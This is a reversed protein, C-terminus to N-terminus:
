RAFEEKLRAIEEKELYRAVHSKRSFDRWTAGAAIAGPAADFIRARAAIAREINAIADLGERTLEGDRSLYGLPIAETRARKLRRGLGPLDITGDCLSLLLSVDGTATAAAPTPSGDADVYGGACAEARALKLRRGLGALDVPGARSLRMVHLLASLQPSHDPGQTVVTAKEKVNGLDNRSMKGGTADTGGINLHASQSSQTDGGDVGGPPVLQGRIYPTKTGGRDGRNSTQGPGDPCGGTSVVYEGSQNQTKQTASRMLTHTAVHPSPQPTETGGKDGFRTKLSAVGGESLIKEPHCARRFERWSTGSKIAADGRALLGERTQRKRGGTPDKIRPDPEPWAGGGQEHWRRAQDVAQPLSAGPASVPALESGQVVAPSSAVAKLFEEDANLLVVTLLKGEEGRLGRGVNQLLLSVREETRHRAYEEQTLEEPNFSATPRFADCDVVIYKLGPVDAGTGMAGRSYTIMVREEARKLGSGDRWDLDRSANEIILRSTPHSHAVAGHLGRAREKTTTFVLGQGIAELPETVLRQRGDYLAQLGTHGSIAVLSVQRVKRASYPHERVVLDPWVSRLVALDDKSVTAGAFAIGRAYERLMELPAGDTLLLRPVECTGIPFEIGADWDKAKVDLSQPPVATGRRDPRERVVTPRTAFGLMHDVVEQNSEVPHRGEEKQFVLLQQPFGTPRVRSAWETTGVRVEPGTQLDIGEIPNSPRSCAGDRDYVTTKPGLLVRTGYENFGVDGGHPVLKCNGCNGSGDKKPCRTLPIDKTRQHDPSRQSKVRHALPIEQRLQNIFASCEDILFTVEGKELTSWFGRLYKSFGRRTIQAFTTIIVRTDDNIPYHGDTTVGDEDRVLGHGYVKAVADEPADLHSVIQDANRISSTVCVVVRDLRCLESAVKAFAYSKGTGTPAIQVAAPGDCDALIRRALDSLGKPAEPESPAEPMPSTEPWGEFADSRNFWTGTGEWADKAKGFRGVWWVGDPHPYAYANPNGPDRGPSLTRFEGRLKLAKHLEQLGVTHTQLVWGGEETTSWSAAYDHDRLWAVHIEHAEEVEAPGDTGSPRGSTRRRGQPVQDRWGEPVALRAGQRVLEFGDPGRRRAYIWHNCGAVDVVQSMDVGVIRSIEGLVWTGLSRHEARTATAVPEELFVYGHYGKGSTSRRLTVWPIELIARRVEELREDSLGTTEHSAVSDLDFPIWISCKRKWNWGSLGVLDIHRPDWHLPETLKDYAGSSWPIRIDKWTQGADDTYGRWPRGNYTENVERGGDPAVSVQIEMEHTYLLALDLPSHDLLYNRFATTRGPLCPNPLISEPEPEPEEKPVERDLWDDFFKQEESDPLFRALEAKVRGDWEGIINM